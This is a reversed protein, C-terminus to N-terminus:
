ASVAVKAAERAARREAAAAKRVAVPVHCKRCNHAPRGRGVPKPLFHGCKGRKSAM